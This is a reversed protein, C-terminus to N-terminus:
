WCRFVIRRDTNFARITMPLTFFVPDHKELTPPPAQLPACAPTVVKQCYVPHPHPPEGAIEGTRGTRSSAAARPPEEVAGIIIIESYSAEARPSPGM